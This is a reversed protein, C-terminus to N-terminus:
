LLRTAFSLIGCVELVNFISTTAAIKGSMVKELFRQNIELLPDNPYRLDRVFIDTDIFVRKM